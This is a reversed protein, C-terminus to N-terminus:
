PPQTLAAVISAPVVQRFALLLGAIALLTAIYSWGERAISM